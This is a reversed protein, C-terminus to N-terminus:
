KSILQFKFIIRILKYSFIQTFSVIILYYFSVILVKQLEFDSIMIGFNLNNHKLLLKLIKNSDNIGVKRYFVTKSKSNSEYNSVIKLVNLNILFANLDYLIRFLDKFKSSIM